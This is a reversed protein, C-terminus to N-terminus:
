MTHFPRFVCAFWFFFLIAIGTFGLFGGGFFLISWIGRFDLFVFFGFSYVGNPSKDSETSM